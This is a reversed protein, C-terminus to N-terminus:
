NVEINYFVDDAHHFGKNKNKTNVYSRWINRDRECCGVMELITTIEIIANTCQECFDIYSDLIEKDNLKQQSVMYYKLFKEVVEDFSKNVFIMERPISIKDKRIRDTCPVPLVAKIKLIVV